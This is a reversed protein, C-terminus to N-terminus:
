EFDDDRNRFRFSKFKSNGIFLDPYNKNLYEKLDEKTPPNGTSMSERFWTKFSLYLDYLTIYSGEEKVIMDNIYMKYVDNKVRYMETADYVKKPEFRPLNKKRVELLLWAFAELMGPIKEEFYPDKPFKKLRLQEEYSEPCKDADCFTSEFPFVRIRNWTAKDSQPIKPPDNCIVVLKFMPEIDQGEQFLGRAYFTDNGSLEKLIGINLEDKKDPEQAVCWRVGNGIRILEPTASSSQTRKGTIISTPLKKSYDGLMKEFMIQTISKGNDGDGSWFYVKKNQNGGVFIDSSINLFYERLERDPFIKEFFEHVQIVEESTESFNKYEVGMSISIYDDPLGERFTNTKLDYVGNKFGILFKNKNLKKLFVPDYFVEESEKMIHAKFPSSKLCNILKTYYKMKTEGPNKVEESDFDPKVFVDVSSRLENSILPILYETIKMKLSHGKEILKWKNDIFEYWINGSLSACVFNNSYKEKLARAFDNHGGGILNTTYKIHAISRKSVIRDYEQSNDSKAWLILSGIGIGSEQISSKEWAKICSEEDYKSGAKKSFELFLSLGDDSGGSINYICWLVQVWKAYDSSREESLIGIMIKAEKLNQSAQADNFVRVVRRKEKKKESFITMITTKIELKQRGSSNISFIRPLYYVERDELNIIQEETDYIKYKKLADEIEIKELQSNYIKTLFYAKEKDSKKSGYLLWNNRVVADDIITSADKIGINKFLTKEINEKVKSIIYNSIEDKHLFIYPFHLHFGNKLQRKDGITKIYPDKELVFCYLYEEKCEQIVESIVNQYLKVIYKLKDENYLRTSTDVEFDDTEEIKLDIDALLPLIAKPKETLGVMPDSSDEIYDCYTEWFVDQTEKGIYFKGLPTMMSTHTFNEGEARLRELLKIVPNNM